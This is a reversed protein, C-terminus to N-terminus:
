LPAGCRQDRDRRHPGADLRSSEGDGGRSGTHHRGPLQHLAQAFDDRRGPHGVHRDPTILARTTSSPPAPPSCSPCKPHPLAPRRHPMEPCKPHSLAPRHHLPRAPFSSPCPPPPRPASFFPSALLSLSRARPSRSCLPMRLAGAGGWFAGRSQTVGWVSRGGGTALDGCGILFGEGRTDAGEHPAGTKKKHPPSCCCCGCKRALPGGVPGRGRGGGGSAHPGGGRAARWGALGTRGRVARACM